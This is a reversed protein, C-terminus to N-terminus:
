PAPIATETVTMLAGVPEGDTILRVRPEEGAPLTVSLYTLTYDDKGAGPTYTVDVRRSGSDGTYVSPKATYGSGEHRYYILYTYTTEAGAEAVHCLIYADLQDNRDPDHCASLWDGAPTGASFADLALGDTCVTGSADSASFSEPPETEVPPDPLNQIIHAVGLVLALALLAALALYVPKKM